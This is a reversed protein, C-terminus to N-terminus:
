PVVVGQQDRLTRITFATQRSFFFASSISFQMGEFAKFVKTYVTEQENNVTRM